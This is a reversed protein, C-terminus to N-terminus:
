WEWHATERGEAGSLSANGGAGHLHLRGPCSSGSPSWREAHAVEATRAMRAKGRSCATARMHRSAPALTARLMRSASMSDRDAQRARRGGCPM